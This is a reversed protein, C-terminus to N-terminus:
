VSEHAGRDAPPQGRQPTQESLDDAEALGQWDIAPEIQRAGHRLIGVPTPALRETLEEWGAQMIAAPSAPDDGAAPGPDAVESLVVAAIWLGQSRAATVVALTRGIAGLRADDCVVLPFGLQRALDANLLQRSLPSYLGGAGEVIVCDSRERWADVASVLLPEDIERGEAAAARVPAAAARFAQPCVDAFEGPCGAAEWLRRPDEGDAAVGSAVPKCVGVAVGHGTLERLIAEAVATKGVDTDTGCLFLGPTLFERTM